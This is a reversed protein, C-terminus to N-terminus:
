EGSRIAAQECRDCDIRCDDSGCEMDFCTPKDSCKHVWGTDGCYLCKVGLAKRVDELMKGPDFYDCHESSM